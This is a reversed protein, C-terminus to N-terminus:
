ATRYRIRGAVDTQGAADVYGRGTQGSQFPLKNSKVAGHWLLAGGAKTSGTNVKVGGYLHGDLTQRGDVATDDYPGYLGTATIKGLACGSPIFGNTHQSADFTTLDLTITQIADVGHQSDLWSNDDLVYSTTQPTLDM